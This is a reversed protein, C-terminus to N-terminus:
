YFKTV